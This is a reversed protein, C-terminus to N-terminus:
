LSFSFCTCWSQIDGRVQNGNKKHPETVIDDLLLKFSQKKRESDLGDSKSGFYCARIQAVKWDMRRRRGINERTSTFLRIRSKRETYIYILTIYIEEIRGEEKIWYVITTSSSSKSSQRYALAAPTVIRLGVAAAHCFTRSEDGYFFSLSLYFFSLFFFFPHFYALISIWDIVTPLSFPRTNTPM